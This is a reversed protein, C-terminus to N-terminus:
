SNTSTHVLLTLCQVRNVNFTDTLANGRYKVTTIITMETRSKVTSYLTSLQSNRFLNVLGDMLNISARTDAVITVTAVAAIATLQQSNQSTLM